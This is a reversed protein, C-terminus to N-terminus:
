FRLSRRPPRDRVGPPPRAHGRIGQARLSRRLGAICEAGVPEGWGVGDGRKTRKARRTRRRRAMWTPPFFLHLQLPHRAGGVVATIASSRLRRVGRSEHEFSQWAPHRRPRSKGDGLPIRQLSRHLEVQCRSAVGMLRKISGSCTASCRIRLSRDGDVGM